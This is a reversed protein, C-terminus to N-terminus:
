PEHPYIPPMFISIQRSGPAQLAATPAAKILYVYCHVSSLLYFIFIIVLATRAMNASPAEVHTVM